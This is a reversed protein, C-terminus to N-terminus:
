CDEIDDIGPLHGDFQILELSAGGGTSVHSFEKSYGFQKAAAASDGGGIVSFAGKKTAEVCAKCVAITGAQFQEKEFVGMPGNWFITKANEIEKCYLEATKEGIDLGEFDDPIGQNGGIPTEIQHINTPDDFTGDAIVTDVPLVIKGTEYCKKAYEAQDKECISKGVKNGLAYKFTYSMGGGILIKDCKKLLSDIVQIKDSVKAGGLIAIYPRNEEKCDVCNSLAKIEKEVLFGVATEKGQEKLLTPVGVTSAHARHASGFADMVYADVLSAWEASLEPNNKTEGKEYRTNQVLLVEGDKLADVKAKLSEGRTEESFSVSVDKGLANKLHKKLPEIAIKLDNARKEKEIEADDVKGWKIKGLHSMLVVKAGKNLLEVITPVAAAIRNDDSIVEGKHPVNFDVRVLVKKGAVNLQSVQKKM